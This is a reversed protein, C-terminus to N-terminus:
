IDDLYQLYVEIKSLRVIGDADDARQCVHRSSTRIKCKDTIEETLSSPPTEAFVRFIGTTAGAALLAFSSATRLFNRRDM